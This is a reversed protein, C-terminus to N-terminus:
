EGSQPHKQLVYYISRFKEPYKKIEAIEKRENEFLSANKALQISKELYAYYDQWWVNEDLEFAQLLELDHRAFIRQKEPDDKLEDHIILHGGPKLFDVLVPLGKEFGVVNLLGEALVIDFSGVPLHVDFLSAQSIKVRHSFNLVEVKQKLWELSESDSDVAWISGFYIEALALSPVGTGCGMDLILPQDIAPIMSFAKLTYPILNKRCDDKIQNLNLLSDTNKRRCVMECYEDGDLVNKLHVYESSPHFSEYKAQDVSCYIRGIKQVGKEKWYEALPCHTIKIHTKNEEPEAKEIDWGLWPLDALEVYNEPLHEIGEALIHEKHQNGRESGFAKIARSVLETGREEGLESLVEKTMHYFLSAMMRGMQRVQIAAVEQKIVDDEAM